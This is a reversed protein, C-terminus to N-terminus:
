MTPSNWLGPTLCSAPSLVKGTGRLAEAHAPNDPGLEPLQISFETFLRKTTRKFGGAGGMYPSKTQRLWKSLLIVLLDHLQWMGGYKM